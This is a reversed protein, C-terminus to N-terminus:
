RQRCMPAPGQRGVSLIVEVSPGLGSQEADVARRVVVVDRLYQTHRSVLDLPSVLVAPHGSGVVREDENWPGRWRPWFRPLSTLWRLAHIRVHRLEIGVAPVYGHVRLRSAHDRPKLPIDACAPLGVGTRQRDFPVPADFQDLKAARLAAWFGFGPSVVGRTPPRAFHGDCKPRSGQAISNRIRSVRNSTEHGRGAARLAGTTQHADGPFPQM